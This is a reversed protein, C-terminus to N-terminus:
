IQINSPINNTLNNGSHFPYAGRLVGGLRIDSKSDFNRIEESNVKSCFISSFSLIGVVFKKLM